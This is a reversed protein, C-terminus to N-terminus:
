IFVVNRVLYNLQQNLKLHGEPISVKIKQFQQSKGRQLLKKKDERFNKKGKLV